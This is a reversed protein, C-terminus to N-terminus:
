EAPLRRQLLWDVGMPLADNVMLTHGQGDIVRHEVRMGSERWADLYGALREPSAIPDLEAGIVLMPPGSHNPQVFVPGALCLGAALRGELGPGSSAIAVAGLSHGVAYLRRPDVRYDQEMERIVAEFARPNAIFFETRPSVVIFGHRDALDTILGAGYGDPFLNEDGGAGHLAIVLPAGPKASKPAYVRVPIDSDGLRITRWYHGTRGAYPDRGERLAEIEQPMSAAIAGLGAVLTTSAGASPADTLLENRSRAAALAHRLDPKIEISALARAHASRKADLSGCVSAVRGVLLPDVGPARLSLEYDGAEDAMRRLPLEVVSPGAGITVPAQALTEGAGDLLALTADIPEAGPADRLPRLTVRVTRDTCPDVIRPAADAVVSMLMRQRATGGVLDASLDALSLIARRADGGFFFGTIRDFRRNISVLTEGTAPNAAFLRDFRLYAAALDARRLTITSAEEAAADAARLTPAFLACCCAAAAILAILRTRERM